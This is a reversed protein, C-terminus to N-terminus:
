TPPSTTLVMTPASDLGLSMRSNSGNMPQVLRCLLTAWTKWLTHFVQAIRRELRRAAGNDRSVQGRTPVLM